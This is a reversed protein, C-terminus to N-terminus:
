KRDGGELTIKKNDRMRDKKEKRNREKKKIRLALAHIYNKEDETEPKDLVFVQDFKRGGIKDGYNVFVNWASSKPLPGKRGAIILHRV